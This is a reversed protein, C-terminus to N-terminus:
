ASLLADKALEAPHSGTCSVTLIRTLGNGRMFKPTPITEDKRISFYPSFSGAEECVYSVGDRIDQEILSKPPYTNGWQTPNGHDAMFTRAHEYLKQLEEIDTLETKRINM